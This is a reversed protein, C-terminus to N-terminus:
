DFANTNNTNFLKNNNLNITTYYTIGINLPKLYHVSVIEGNRYTMFKGLPKDQSEPEPDGLLNFVM